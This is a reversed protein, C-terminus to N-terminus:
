SILVLKIFKDTTETPYFYNFTYKMCLSESDGTGESRSRPGPYPCPTHGKRSRKASAVARKSTSLWCPLQAAVLRRIIHKELGPRGDVHHEDLAQALCYARSRSEM